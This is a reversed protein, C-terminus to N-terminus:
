IGRTPDSSENISDHRRLMQRVAYGLWLVAAVAGALLPPVGLGMLVFGTAVSGVVVLWGIHGTVRM